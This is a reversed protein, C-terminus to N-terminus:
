GLVGAEQEQLMRRMNILAYRMRGLATNISVGTLEAIEKFSLEGYIRLSVVERQDDSLRAIAARVRLCDERQELATGAHGAAPGIIDELDSPHAIQVPRRVKQRRFYDMCMNRAMRMVWPLFRGQEAYASDTERVMRIIKLFCEQFIDEAAAHDRVLMYITTFIKDKHRLIIAEMAASRGQRYQHILEADTLLQLTQM